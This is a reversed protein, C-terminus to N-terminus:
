PLVKLERYADLHRIFQDESDEVLTFGALRARTMSQMVDRDIAFVYDGYAWLALKALESFRLGHREAIRAWVPQKDAMWRELSMPRIIGPPLRFYAALRPWFNCWRYVDGNNINFAQDAARPETIAWRIFHALVTCDTNEALTTYAGPKGPFDFAVGLERCIAAYAGIVTVLNRPRGPAVDVLYQPRSASWSWAKGRRREALLDQQDYYFNPSMHRPDDERAPSRIPGIHVGYWKAGEVLHVHHLAPSEVADLMNRLMAVNSPVDEVGGEGFPSRASYVFHTVAGAQAVAARCSEPDLLDTAIYRLTPSTRESPPRRCLGVVRWGPTAALLETLRSAAAGTAGAILALNEAM